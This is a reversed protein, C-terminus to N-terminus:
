PRMANIFSPLLYLGFFFLIVYRVTFLATSFADGHDTFLVDWSATLEVGVDQGDIKFPLNTTPNEIPSSAEETFRTQWKSVGFKEALLETMEVYLNEVAECGCHGDGCETQTGCLSALADPDAKNLIGDGDHDGTEELYRCHGKGEGCVPGTPCDPCCGRILGPIEPCMTVNGVGSYILCDVCGDPEGAASDCSNGVGDGDTDAQGPNPVYICNDLSDPVGDSDSDLDPGGGGGGGCETELAASAQTAHTSGGGPPNGCYCAWTGGACGLSVSYIKESSENGPISYHYHYCVDPVVGPSCEASDIWGNGNLDTGATPTIGYGTEGYGATTANRTSGSPCPDGSNPIGDGDIDPDSGNLVGDGDIDGDTSDFTGDLDTDSDCSNCFNTPCTDSVDPVGDGDTDTTDGAEFGPCSNAGTPFYYGIAVLQACTRADWGYGNASAWASDKNCVCAEMSIASGLYAPFAFVPRALVWLGAWLLLCSAVLVVRASGIRNLAM